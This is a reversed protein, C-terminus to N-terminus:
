LSLAACLKRGSLRLELPDVRQSSRSRPRGAQTNKILVFCLLRAPQAGLMGKNKMSVAERFGRKM